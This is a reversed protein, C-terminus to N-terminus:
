GFAQAPLCPILMVSLLYRLPDRIEDASLFLYILSLLVPLAMVLGWRWDEQYLNHGVLYGMGAYLLAEVLVGAPLLLVLFRILVLVTITQEVEVAATILSSKQGQTGFLVETFRIAVSSPHM